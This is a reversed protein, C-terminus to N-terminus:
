CPRSFGIAAASWILLPIAQCLNVIAQFSRSTAAAQSPSFTRAALSVEGTDWGIGRPISIRKARVSLSTGNMTPGTGPVSILFNAIQSRSDSM